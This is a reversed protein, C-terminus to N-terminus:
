QTRLVPAVAERMQALTMAGDIGRVIRGRRDVIISTPLGISRYARGYLQEQDLLVPYHLGFENAFAGAKAASEGQDIGLVVLGRVRQENYLRELDPTEDRCPACWTAWLNILVVKGRYRDLSDTTGDLRPVPYSVAPTGALVAPGSISRLVGPNQGLYSGFIGIVAIFGAVALLLILANRM